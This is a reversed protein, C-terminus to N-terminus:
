REVRGGGLKRIIAGLVVLRVIFRRAHAQGEGCGNRQRRLRARGQDIWGRAIRLQDLRERIRGGVRIEVRRDVAQDLVEPEAREDVSRDAGLGGDHYGGLHLPGVGDKRHQGAVNSDVRQPVRVRRRQQVDRDTVGLDLARKDVQEAGLADFDVGAVAFPQCRQVTGALEAVLGDDSLQELVAGVDVGLVFRLQAAVKVGLIVWLKDRVQHLLAQLDFEIVFGLRRSIFRGCDIDRGRVTIGRRRRHGYLNRRGFRYGYGFRDRRHRFRHREARTWRERGRGRGAIREREILWGCDRDFAAICGIRGGIDGELGCDKKRHRDVGGFPM